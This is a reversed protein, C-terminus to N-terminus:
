KSLVTNVSQSSNYTKKKKEKKMSSPDKTGKQNSFINENEMENKNM